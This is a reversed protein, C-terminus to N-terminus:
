STRRYPGMHTHETHTMQLRRNICRGLGLQFFPFLLGGLGEVVQEVESNRGGTTTVRPPSPVEGQANVFVPGKVVEALFLEQLGLSHFGTM